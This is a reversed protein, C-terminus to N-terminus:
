PLNPRFGAGHGHRQMQQTATMAPLGDAWERAQKSPGTGNSPAPLTLNTSWTEGLRMNLPPALADVEALPMWPVLQTVVQQLRPKIAAEGARGRQGWRVVLGASTTAGEAAKDTFAFDRRIGLRSSMMFEELLMATDERRTSYAYDDTALDRSFFGGVEVPTYAMQTANATSGQYMVQGLGSMITSTLPYQVAVADSTLQNNSVRGSMNSWASRSNDLTTYQQPPLFDLAHALEHYMLWGTERLLQDQTRVVRARRSFTGFVSQNDKTYRWPSTFQLDKGFASRFDPAENVTDREAPTLWFNEADLYIAGTGAYYFSPRVHSGIVIATVSSLMRRFDGRTDHARLFDEFNKGMWDHSVVVRNMVQEISPIGGPAAQALFPLRSLACLNSSTQQGDYICPVLASAYPSAPRYAYVRSVHSDTWLYSNNGAPAAVYPEVVVLAEISDSAGNQTTLTARLRIVADSAVEPAVFRAVYFDTTDLTVPPGAVQTWSINVVSDTGAVTPWARVSVKGGKRVSQHGRLVLQTAALTAATTNFTSTSTRAAGTADKFSVTFSYAGPETPEFAITQSKPALLTVTPGATQTWQPSSIAGNCSAVALGVSKGLPAPSLVIGYADATSSCSDFGPPSDPKVPIYPAATDSGGGGGGSGLLTALGACSVLFLGAARWLGVPRNFSFDPRSM